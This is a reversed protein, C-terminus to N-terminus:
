TYIPKRGATPFCQLCHTLRESLLQSPLPKTLNSRRQNVAGTPASQYHAWNASLEPMTSFMICCQEASSKTSLKWAWRPASTCTHMHTFIVVTTNTHICTHSNITLRSSFPWQLLIGRCIGECCHRPNESDLWLSHPIFCACVQKCERKWVCVCVCM